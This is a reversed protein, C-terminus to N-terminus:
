LVRHFCLLTGQTLTVGPGLGGTWGRAWRADEPSCGTLWNATQLHGRASADHIGAAEGEGKCNLQVVLSPLQLIGSNWSKLAKWADGEYVPKPSEDRGRNLSNEKRSTHSCGPDAEGM